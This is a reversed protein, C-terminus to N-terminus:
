RDTWGPNQQLVVDKNTDIVSQPIPWLNYNFNLTAKTEPWFAYQRIRDVAITGGMRLLTNWRAEEYILERAREDLIMNFNDDMDAATVMYSCQARARLLNIDSAAGQKNGLRQKAEARLLITESLRIYYDDRFLNSRDQGMDTGVYKDTTVKCSQPWARSRNNDNVASSTNGYYIYDWPIVKLYYPSGPVNGKFRRRMVVESNRLDEGWKDDYIFDRTYMTANVRTIGRGGIDELMGTIVDPICDRFSHGYARTYKLYSQKDEAQYADWDVQLTWISEKNGDQYNINGDQFLDWFHNPYFLLTDVVARASNGSEHIDITFTAENARKGFRGTMLSYTGGDILQNAYNVSSTYAAQSEGSKGEAELQIGLSLYLQALNHQAAGRVIRGGSATTEPLDSLASELDDIAFQYTQIRTSREFDYRPGTVLEDVIPVGGFLEGLNRYAFARFFKAQAIIYAKEDASAWTIQPLEAAYMALNTRSIIKYMDAYIDKFTNHNSNITSYDSFTSGKRNSGVDYMDTGKGRWDYYSASEGPNTWMTRLQSYIAIVIQDVQASTSYINDITYFSEPNEELFKDDNCSTMSFLIALMCVTLISIIAKM